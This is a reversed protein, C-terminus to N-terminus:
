MTLTDHLTTTANMSALIAGAREQADKLWLRLLQYTCYEGAERSGAFLFPVDYRQQFALVSNVAATPNMQSRYNGRALDVMNAEVVVARLDFSRLRHLEREFRERGSTLCGVLDDLSKRELGVVDEFGPLSYDASQLTARIVTVDSFKCFSYPKQERTDVIIQMDTMRELTIKRARRPTGM